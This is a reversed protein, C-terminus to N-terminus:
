RKKRKKSFTKEFKGAAPKGKYTKSFERREGSGQRAAPPGRRGGSESDSFSRENFPSIQLQKGAVWTRQLQNMLEGEVHEPLDVISFQSRIDIPGIDRGSLGAENAIAGVINGPRVGDQSGVEIRFRRMGRNPPGSRRRPRDDRDGGSSRSDRDGFRGGRDERSNSRREPATPLDKVFMPSKGQSIAALAAAVREPAEGTEALYEGVLKHYPGLDGGQLQHTIQHKFREIRKKNIVEATPMNIIDITRKTAREILRLKGSQRHTLFIVAVGSRGARGTRGIRHIYSESDHPLDYNFVHSIRQVDLGRAAVDTAVLVDLQGAKLQDVARQRRAQPLDGNLAAASIGIKSLREAVQVTSEKTKTFVIVGDTDEMELMRALLEPKNYEEVFVCMQEISDATITNRRITITAPDKLYEDAIRRIQPPMTASFLAVQKDQPTQALVFEVDEFFGMNLMEDAEDLVVCQINDLHFTGRRIHDIVRGPTGVVVQVGRRLLRLQSDYDAGGYIAAVKLKPMCKAYTEFSKAVQTALERTPALVLIQPKTEDLNIRSLIPLAFAATKGTGTQSQALVDRGDLMYPIIEAQVATPTIYGSMQVALQVEESLALDRFVVGVDEAAPADEATAPKPVVTETTAKDSEVKDSATGASNAAAMAAAAAEAAKAAKKAKKRLKKAIQQPTLEPTDVADSPAATPLAAAAITQEIVSPASALAPAARPPEALSVAAEVAITVPESVMEQSASGPEEAPATAASIPAAEVAEESVSSSAAVEVVTAEVVPAEVVPAEVVPAEVVPTEAVPVETAHVEIVTAEAESTDPASSEPTSVVAQDAVASPMAATPAAVAEVAATAAKAAVEVTAAVAAQVVPAAPTPVPTIEPQATHTQAAAANEQAPPAGAPLLSSGTLSDTLTQRKAAKALKIKQAAEQAIEAKLKALIEADLDSETKKSM